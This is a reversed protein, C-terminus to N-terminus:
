CVSICSGKSLVNHSKSPKKPSLLSYNEVFLENLLERKERNVFLQSIRV